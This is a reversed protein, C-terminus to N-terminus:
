AAWFRRVGLLKLALRRAGHRPPAPLRPADLADWPGPQWGWSLEYGAAAAATRVREDSLGYPYALTRCPGGTVEAVAARSEGLQRALAADDLGRLDPHDWAHSGAGMGADLLRRVDAAAMVRGAPGAVLPHQDEWWGPCVYFSAVAREQELVPLAHTVWNAFGDDFSLVAVRGAPRRAGIVEDATVFRYGLRRLLRVHARLHESSTLLRHPDDAVPVTGGVDDVGHYALAVARLVSL